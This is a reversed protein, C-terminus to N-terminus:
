KINKIWADKYGAQQVQTLVSQADQKTTFPGVSVAKLKGIDDVVVTGITELSSVAKSVNSESGFAGVQIYWTGLEASVKEEIKEEKTMDQSVAFVGGEEVSEEEPTKEITEEVVSVETGAPTVEIQPLSEVSVTGDYIPEFFSDEPQYIPQSDGVPIVDFSIEEDSEVYEELQSKLQKSEDPLIDVQVLTTGTEPFELAEATRRSVDILRSNVAPGRDNVRVIATNGNELNTIRVLSPLPLTKHAATMLNDYFIEGNTTLRNQEDRSYWSAFGKESYEMNEQPTYLVGKIQYPSGIYYVGQEGSTDDYPNGSRFLFGNESCGGLFSALIIASLTYKFGKIMEM